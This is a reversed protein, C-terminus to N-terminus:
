LGVMFVQDFELGKSSHYTMLQVENKIGDDEGNRNDQSDAFTTKRYLKCSNSRRWFSGYIPRSGYYLKQVDDKKRAAIKPSDYSKEVFNMYDIEDILTAM